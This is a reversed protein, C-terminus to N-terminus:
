SICQVYGELVTQPFGENGLADAAAELPEKGSDYWDRYPYDPLDYVSVGSITIVLEDVKQMWREFTLDM